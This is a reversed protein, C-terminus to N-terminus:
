KGHVVRLPRSMTGFDDRRVRRPREQTCMAWNLLGPLERPDHSGSHDLRAHLVAQLAETRRERMAESHAEQDNALLRTCTQAKWLTKIPTKCDNFVSDLTRCCSTTWHKTCAASHCVQSPLILKCRPPLKVLARYESSRRKRHPNPLLIM